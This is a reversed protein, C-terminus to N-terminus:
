VSKINKFYLFFQEPNKEGGSSFHLSTALQLALLRINFDGITM